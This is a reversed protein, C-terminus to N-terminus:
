EDLFPPLDSLDPEPQAARRTERSKQEALNFMITMVIAFVVAGIQLVASIINM